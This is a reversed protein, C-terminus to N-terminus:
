SSDANGAERYPQRVGSMQHPVARVIGKSFLAVSPKAARCGLPFGRLPAGRQFIRGVVAGEALVDFDDPRLARKLILYDREM